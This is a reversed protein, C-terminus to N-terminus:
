WRQLWFLYGRYDENNTVFTHMNKTINGEELNKDAWTQVKEKFEETPDDGIERYHIENCLDNEILTDESEGDVIVFRGGKYEKRVRLNMNPFNNVIDKLAAREGPTLNDKIKRRLSPDMNDRGCAELFSEVAPSALPAAKDTGQYWPTKVFDNEEEKFNNQKAFFYRWRVSEVFKLYSQYQAHNDM